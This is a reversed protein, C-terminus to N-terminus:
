TDAKKLGKRRRGELAGIDGALVTDELIFGAVAVTLSLPSLAQALQEGTIQGRRHATLMHAVATRLKIGYVKRVATSIDEAPLGPNETTWYDLSDRIIPCNLNAEIKFGPEDFRAIM